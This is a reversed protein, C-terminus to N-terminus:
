HIFHRFLGCGVHGVESSTFHQRFAEAENKQHPFTFPDVGIVRTRNPNQHMFISTLGKWVGIEMYYAVEAPILSRLNRLIHVHDHFTVEKRESLETNLFSPRITMMENKLTRVESLRAKLEYQTLPLAQHHNKM